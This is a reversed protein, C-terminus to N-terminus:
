LEDLFKIKDLVLQNLQVLQNVQVITTPHPTPTLFQDPCYPTFM